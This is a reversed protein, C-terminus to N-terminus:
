LSDFFNKFEEDSTIRTFKGEKIQREGERVLEINRKDAWFLDGSPSIEFPNCRYEEPISLFEKIWTENVFNDDPENTVFLNIYKKGRKILVREEEALDLYKKQKDRFERTSVIVM